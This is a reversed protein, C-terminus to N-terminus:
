PFSVINFIRNVSNSTIIVSNAIVDEKAFSLFLGVV